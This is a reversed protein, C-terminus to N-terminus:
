QLASSVSFDQRSGGLRQCPADLRRRHCRSPLARARPGIKCPGPDEQCGIPRGPWVVQVPLKHLAPPQLRCSSRGRSGAHGAPEAEVCRRGRCHPSPEARDLIITLPWPLDHSSPAPSRRTGPHLHSGVGPLQYLSCSGTQNMVAPPRHGCPSPLACASLLHRLFPHIGLDRAGTGRRMVWKKYIPKRPSAMCSKQIGCGRSALEAQHWCSDSQATCVPSCEVWLLAALCGVRGENVISAIFCPPPYRSDGRWSVSPSHPLQEALSGPAVEHTRGM